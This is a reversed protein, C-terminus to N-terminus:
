MYTSMAYINNVDLFAYVKCHKWIKIGLVVSCQVVTM